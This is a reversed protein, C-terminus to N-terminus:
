LKSLAYIGILTVCLVGIETIVISENFKYETSTPTIARVCGWGLLIIAQSIISTEFRSLAVPIGRTCLVTTTCVALLAASFAGFEIDCQYGILVISIGILPIINIFSTRPTHILVMISANISVLPVMWQSLPAVSYGDYLSLSAGLLPLILLGIYKNVYLVHFM